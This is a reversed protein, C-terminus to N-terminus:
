IVVVHHVIKMAEFCAKSQRALPIVVFYRLRVFPVHDFAILNGAM